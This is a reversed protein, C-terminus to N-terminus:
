AQVTEQKAAVGPIHNVEPIGTSSSFPTSASSSPSSLARAVAHPFPLHPLVLENFLQTSTSIGQTTYVAGFVAEVATGRCKWLGTMEGDQGRVERWRLADELGWAKGIGAGLTKTDVLADLSEPSLTSSLLAPFSSLSTLLHTTLHLRLVRRGIFALKENHATRKKGVEGEQTDDRRRAYAARKDVGSKHTLVKAALHEDLLHQNPLNGLPSLLSTLFSHQSSPSPSFLHTGTAPASPSSSSSSSASPSDDAFSSATSSFVRPHSASSCAPLAAARTVRAPSPRAARTVLRLAQQAHTRAASM